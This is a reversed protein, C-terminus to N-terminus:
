GPEGAPALKTSDAGFLEYRVKKIIDPLGTTAGVIPDTELHRQFSEMYTAVEPEKMRDDDDGTFVLYNIYTGALHQNMAVDAQRIPHSKKFWKVPNDNVVIMNLGIAAAVVVLASGVIIAKYHRHSFNRFGHMLKTLPGHEDDVAGFNQLTKTSILM